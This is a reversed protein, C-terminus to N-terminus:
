VGLNLYDANVCFQYKAVFFNNLWPKRFTASYTLLIVQGDAITWGSDIIQLRRM